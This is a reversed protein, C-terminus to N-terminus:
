LIAPPPATASPLVPPPDRCLLELNIGETNPEVCRLIHAYSPHSLRPEASLVISLVDDRAATSAGGLAARYSLEALVHSYEGNLNVGTLTVASSEEEPAESVAAADTATHKTDLHQNAQPAPPSPAPAPTTPVPQPPPFALLAAPIPSFTARSCDLLVPNLLRLASAATSGSSTPSDSPAYVRAQHAAFQRLLEESWASMSRLPAAPVLRLDPVTSTKVVAAEGAALVHSAVVARANDVHEVAKVLAHLTSKVVQEPEEFEEFPHSRPHVYAQFAILQVCLWANSFVFCFSHAQRLFRLHLCVEHQSRPMGHVQVYARTRRMRWERETRRAREINATRERWLVPLVSDLAHPVALVRDIAPKYQALLTLAFQSVELVGVTGRFFM